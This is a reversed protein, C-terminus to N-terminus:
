GEHCDRGPTAFMSITGAKTWGISLLWTSPPRMPLPEYKTPLPPAPEKWRTFTPGSSFYDVEWYMSEMGHHESHHRWNNMVYNLANRVETPTRLVRAHYRDSFVRGRRPRATTKSIAANLRHTAAVEFGQMGRALAREDSAEVILHIHERQLSIQCIRFDSRRFTSPLARRIAHYADRKRLGGVAKDVRLIAHAPCRAPLPARKKHRESARYGKKPRGAGKRKGGRKRSPLLEQIHHKRARAM